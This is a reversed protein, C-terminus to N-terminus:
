GRFAYGLGPRSELVGPGLKRRLSKIRAEVTSRAVDSSIQHLELIIRSVAVAAPAHRILITLVENEGRSLPVSIGGREIKMAQLFVRLSRSDYSADDPAGARRLVARARALLERVNPPKVVYDDAGAAFAAIRDDESARRTIVIAATEADALIDIGDGDPLDRELFLLDFPGDAM